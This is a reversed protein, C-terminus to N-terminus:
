MGSVPAIPPISFVPVGKEKAKYSFIDYFTNVILFCCPIYLWSLIEHYHKTM